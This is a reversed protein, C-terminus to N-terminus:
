IGGSKLTHVLKHRAMPCWRRQMAKRARALGVHAVVGRRRKEIARENNKVRNVRPKATFQFKDEDDPYDIKDMYFWPFEEGLLLIQLEKFANPTLFNDIIEPSM